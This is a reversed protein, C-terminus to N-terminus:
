NKIKLLRYTIEFFINWMGGLIIVDILIYGSMPKYIVISFCLVIIMITKVIHWADMKLNFFVKNRYSIRPNWFYSNLERFPSVNFNDKLTDMLGNLISAIIMLILSTM